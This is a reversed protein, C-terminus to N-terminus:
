SGTLPWQGGGDGRNQRLPHQSMAKSTVWGSHVCPVARGAASDPSKGMECTWALSPCAHGQPMTHNRCKLLLSLPQQSHWPLLPTAQRTEPPSFLKGLSINRSSMQLILPPELPLFTGLVPPLFRSELKSPYPLKAGLHPPLSPQSPVWELTHLKPLPPSHKSPQRHSRSHM